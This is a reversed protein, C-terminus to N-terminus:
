NNFATNETDKRRHSHQQAKSAGRTCGGQCDLAVCMHWKQLFSKFADTMPMETTLTDALIQVVSSEVLDKIVLLDIIIQREKPISGASQPHFSSMTDTLIIGSVELKPDGAQVAKPNM